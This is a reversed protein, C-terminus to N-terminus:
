CRSWWSVCTELSITSSKWHLLYLMCTLCRCPWSSPVPVRPQGPASQCSLPLLAGCTPAPGPCRQLRTAGGRYSPRLVCAGPLLCDTEVRSDTCLQSQFEASERQWGGRVVAPPCVACSAQTLPGLELLAWSEARGISLGLPLIWLASCAPVSGGELSLLLPGPQTHLSSAASSWCYLEM